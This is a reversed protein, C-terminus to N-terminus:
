SFQNWTMAFAIIWMVMGWADAAVNMSGTYRHFLQWHLSRYVYVQVVMTLVLRALVLYAGWKRRKWIGWLAIALILTEAADLLPNQSPSVLYRSPLHGVIVVISWAKVLVTLVGLLLLINLFITGVRDRSWVFRPLVGAVGLLWMVGVVVVVLILAM